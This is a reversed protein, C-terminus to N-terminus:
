YHTKNGRLKICEICRKPMTDIFTDISSQSIEDWVALIATKLDEKTAYQRSNSYMITSMASWVNEIPNLDPSRAPWEMVEVDHEAFLEKTEKSRHISANDLQFVTQAMACTLLRYSTSRSPGFTTLPLRSAKSSPSRQRGESSIGAWVM